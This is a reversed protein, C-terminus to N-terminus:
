RPVVEVDLVYAGGWPGKVQGRGYQAVIRYSLNRDLLIESENSDRETRGRDSMRVAGTGPPVTIRMVTGGFWSAHEADTSTSVFAKDRFERGVLSRGEGIAEDPSLGGLRDVGRYVLISQTLRSEEMVSDIDKIRAKMQPDLRGSRLQDAMEFAGPLGTSTETSNDGNRYWLADARPDGAALMADLKRPPAALAAASTAPVSPDVQRALSPTEAAAPKHSSGFSSAGRAIHDRMEAASLRAPMKVGLVRAVKRLDAQNLDALEATIADIRRRHLDGKDEGPRPDLDALESVRDAVAAHDVPEKTAKEAASTGILGEHGPKGPGAATRSRAKEILGPEAKHLVDPAQDHKLVHALSAVKADVPKGKIDKEVAARLEPETIGKRRYIGRDKAVSMLQTRSFGKLPDDGGSLFAVQM